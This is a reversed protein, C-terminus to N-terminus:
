IMLSIMLLVKLLNMKNPVKMKELILVKNNSDDDFELGEIQIPVVQLELDTKQKKSPKTPELLEPIEDIKHKGAVKNALIRAEDDDTEPVSSSAADVTQASPQQATRRARTYVQKFVRLPESVKTTREPM